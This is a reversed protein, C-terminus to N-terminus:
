RRNTSRLRARWSGTSTSSATAPRGTTSRDRSTIQEEPTNHWKGWAGHQLRLGQASGRRDRVDEPHDRQFRRLRQCDGRDPRQRRVHSQARHAAVGAHALVHRHFPLPQLLSGAEGGPRADAHQDRRRVDVAHGARRRGDPHDSHEARRGALHKPEVRKKYTSTEMTLGATSASPTPPFPLIEQASALTAFVLSLIAGCVSRTAKRQM